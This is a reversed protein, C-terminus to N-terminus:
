RCVTGPTPLTLDILYADIGHPAVFDRFATVSEEIRTDAVDSLPVAEGDFLGTKHSSLDM